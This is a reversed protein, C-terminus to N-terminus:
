PKISKAYKLCNKTKGNPVYGHHEYFGKATVTSELSLLKLGLDIVSNEAASLLQSGVGLGKVEPLVYCLFLHGSHGIHCAGVIKGNKEAVFTNSDESLIWKKCNEVTKNDLCVELQEKKGHHDLDCLEIFSTRIVNCFEEAYRAVAIRVVLAERMFWLTAM